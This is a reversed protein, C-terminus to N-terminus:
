LCFILVPTVASGGSQSLRGRLFSGSQRVRSQPLWFSGPVRGVELCDTKQEAIRKRVSEEGRVSRGGRERLPVASALRSDKRQGLHSLKGQHVLDVEVAWSGASPQDVLEVQQERVYDKLDVAAAGATQLGKLVPLSDM